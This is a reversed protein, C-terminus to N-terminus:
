AAFEEGGRPSPAPTSDPPTASSRGVARDWGYRGLRFQTYAPKPWNIVHDFDAVASKSQPLSSLRSLKPGMGTQRVHRQPITPLVTRTACHLQVKDGDVDERIPLEAAVREGHHRIRAAKCRFLHLRDRRFEIKGFRGKHQRRLIRGIRRLN